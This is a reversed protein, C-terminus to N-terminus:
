PLLDRARRAATATPAAEVLASVALARLAGLEPPRAYGLAGERATDRLQALEGDLYARYATGAGRLEPHWALASVDRCGATASTAVPLQQAAVDRVMELLGNRTQTPVTGLVPRVHEAMVGVRAQADAVGAQAVQVCRTLSDFERVRLRHDAYWGAAALLALVALAALMRRRRVPNPEDGSELVDLRDGTLSM